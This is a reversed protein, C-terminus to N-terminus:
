WMFGRGSPLQVKPEEMMRGGGGPEPAAVETSVVPSAGVSHRKVVSCIARADVPILPSSSGTASPWRMGVAVKHKCTKSPVM